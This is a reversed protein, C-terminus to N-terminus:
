RPGNASAALVRFSVTVERGDAFILTLPITDGVRVPHHPRTLMLHYGGPAFRLEGGAHVDIRAVPLMRTRGDPRRVSRHVMVRGFAPSRAGVLRAPARAANHLTFYGADPLDGPLHRIWADRV